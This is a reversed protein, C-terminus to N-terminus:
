EYSINDAVQRRLYTLFRHMVHIRVEDDSDVVIALAAEQHAVVAVPAVARDVDTGGALVTTDPPISSQQVGEEESQTLDPMSGPDSTARQPQIVGQVQTPPPFSTQPSVSATPPQTTQPPTPSQTTALDPIDPPLEVADPTRTRVSEATAAEENKLQRLTNFISFTHELINDAATKSQSPEATSTAAAPQEVVAPATPEAKAAEVQLLLLCQTYLVIYVSQRGEGLPWERCHGDENIHGGFAVERIHGCHRPRCSAKNFCSYHTYALKVIQTVSRLSVWSSTSM